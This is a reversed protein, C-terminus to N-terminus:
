EIQTRLNLLLARLEGVRRMHRSQRQVLHVVKRQCWVGLGSFLPDAKAEHRVGLLHPVRQLHTSTKIHVRRRMVTYQRAVNEPRAILSPM